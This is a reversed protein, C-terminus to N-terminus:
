VGRRAREEVGKRGLSDLDVIFEDYLATLAASRRKTPDWLM